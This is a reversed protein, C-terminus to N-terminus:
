RWCHIGAPSLVASRPHTLRRVLIAIEGIVSLLSNESSEADSNMSSRRCRTSQWIVPM